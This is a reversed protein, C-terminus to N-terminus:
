SNKVSRFLSDLKANFDYPSKESRIMEDIYHLRDDTLPHSSLFAPLMHDSEDKLRGFLKTMGKPNIRNKLLLELGETDAEREFQRSYSLSQLNRANDAIVAMIGNVDSLIASIFFYGALNRCMMKMSHRNNVHVAEHALLGALETYDEMKDIIGTFVIIHGDPLAFANVTGSRVVVFKLDKTNGLVLQRAFRNLTETKASDINNYRTYEEFFSSGLKYDYEEPIMVAAKEGAWPIVFLYALVIVAVIFGAIALHLKMGSNVMRQYLSVKGKSRLYKKIADVLQADDLRIYQIPDECTIIKFLSGTQDFSLDEVSLSASRAVPLGFTFTGTADDFMINVPRPTSSLGDFFIGSGQIM